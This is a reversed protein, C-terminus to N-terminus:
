SFSSLQSGFYAEKWRKGEHASRQYKNHCFTSQCVCRDKEVNENQSTSTPQITLSAASFKFDSNLIKPSTGTLLTDVHPGSNPDGVSVYFSLCPQTHRLELALPSVCVLPMSPSALHWNLPSFAVRSETLSQRLFLSSFCNLFTYLM